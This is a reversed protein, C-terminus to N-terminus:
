IWLLGLLPCYWHSHTEAHRPSAHSSASVQHYQKTETHCLSFSYIILCFPFYCNRNHFSRCRLRDGWCCFFFSFLHPSPRSLTSLAPPYSWRRRSPFNPWDWGDPVTVPGMDIGNPNYILFCVQSIHSLRQSASVTDCPLAIQAPFLPPPSPDLGLFIYPSLNPSPTSYWKM